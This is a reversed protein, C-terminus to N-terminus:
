MAYRKTWERALFIFYCCFLIYGEHEADPRNDKFHSNIKPDLPDVCLYLYLFCGMVM